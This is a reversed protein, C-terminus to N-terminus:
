DECLVKANVFGDEIGDRRSIRVNYVSSDACVVDCSSGRWEGAVAREDISRQLVGRLLNSSATALEV